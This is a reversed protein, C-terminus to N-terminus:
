GVAISLRSLHIFLLSGPCLHDGEWAGLSQARRACLHDAAVAIHSHHAVVILDRLVDVGGGRQLYLRRRAGDARVCRQPPANGVQNSLDFFVTARSEAGLELVARHLADGGLRKPEFFRLPLLNPKPM